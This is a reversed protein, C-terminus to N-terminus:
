DRFLLVTRGPPVYDHPRDDAFVIKPVVLVEGVGPVGNTSVSVETPVNELIEQEDEPSRTRLLFYAVVTDDPAFELSLGKVNSTLVGFIAQLVILVVTNERHIAPTMGTM